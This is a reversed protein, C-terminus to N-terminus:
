FSVIGSFCHQAQILLCLETITKVLMNSPMNESKM